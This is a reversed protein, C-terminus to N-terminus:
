PPWTPPVNAGGPTFYGPAGATAGTAAVVGTTYTPPASLSWDIQVEESLAGADWWIRSPSRSPWATSSWMTPRPRAMSHMKFPVPASTAQYNTLATSLAGFVAPFSQYFTMKLHWKTSGPYNVEACLTTATVLKNEPSLEM